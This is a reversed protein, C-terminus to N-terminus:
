TALWHQGHCIGIYTMRVMYTNHRVCRRRCENRGYGCDTYVDKASSGFGTLRSLCFPFRHSDDPDIISIRACAPHARRVEGMLYGVRENGPSRGNLPEQQDVFAHQAWNGMMAVLRFLFFPIIFVCVTAPWNVFCLATCFLFFLVEGRVSRVLLKTRKKRNFYQALHYIGQFTFIGWYKLFGVFSDRQYPMTSSEDDLGNGEAHHMGIHHTYYTEPSHGFFPALVWGANILDKSELRGITVPTLNSLRSIMAGMERDRIRMTPPDAVPNFEVPNGVAIIDGGRDSKVVPIATQM